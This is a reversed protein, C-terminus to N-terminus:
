KKIYETKVYFVTFAVHKAYFTANYVRDMLFLCLVILYEGLILWFGVSIYFIKTKAYAAMTYNRKRYRSNNSQTQLLQQVERKVRKYLLM